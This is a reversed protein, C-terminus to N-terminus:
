DGCADAIGIEVSGSKCKVNGAKYFENQIKEKFVSRVIRGAAVAARPTTYPMPLCCSGRTRKRFYLFSYGSM